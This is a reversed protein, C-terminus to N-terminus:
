GACAILRPPNQAKEAGAFAHHFHEEDIRGAVALADASLQHAMGDVLQAGGPDVDVLLIRLGDAEVLVQAEDHGIERAQIATPPGEWDQMHCEALDALGGRYRGTGAQTRGPQSGRRPQHTHCVWPQGRGRVGRGTGGRRWATSLGRGAGSASCWRAVSTAGGGQGAAYALRAGARGPALAAATGRDALGSAAPCYRKRDM